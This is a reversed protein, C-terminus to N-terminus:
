LQLSAGGFQYKDIGQVEFSDGWNSYIQRRFRRGQLLTTNNAMGGNGSFLMDIEYELHSYGARLNWQENAKVDIWTSLSETDSHRFDVNSATNWNDPLGPVDVGSLNPDAATPVVGAQRNYGPKQQVQPSEDKRFNEYKFSISVREIPQWLLSPAINQAHADYPDWYEIDQDYAAALRFFLTKSLPGTIDGELRYQDYSGYTIDASAAFESQPRKTIINVIGGPAVQGYLFSAPGKVVEVRSINSFDFISPGHFGDRLIQVNGPTGSVSFGRIAVLANGETGDNSRYTVGPSYRVVDIINGAKQDDIFSETFAQIAFPLDQIPTDLRSGSVSNSARYGRDLCTSVDFPSVRVMGLEMLDM